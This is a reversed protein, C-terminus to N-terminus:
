YVFIKSIYCSDTVVKQCWLTDIDCQLKKYKNCRTSNKRKVKREHCNLIWIRFSANATLSKNMHIRRCYYIQDYLWVILRLLSISFFGPGLGLEEWFNKLKDDSGLCYLDPNRHLFKGKLLRDRLEYIQCQKDSVYRLGFTRKCSTM